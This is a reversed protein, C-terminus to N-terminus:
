RAADRRQPWPDDEDECSDSALLVLFMLFAIGGFSYCTSALRRNFATLRERRTTKREPKSGAEQSPGTPTTAETM